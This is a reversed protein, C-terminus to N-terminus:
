KASSACIPLHSRVETTRMMPEGSNRTSEHRGSRCCRRPSTWRTAGRDRLQASSCIRLYAPAGKHGDVVADLDGQRPLHLAVPQGPCGMERAHTDYLKPRNLRVPALGEPWLPPLLVPAHRNMVHCLQWVDPHWRRGRLPVVGGYGGGWRLQEPNDTGIQGTSKRTGATAESGSGILFDM